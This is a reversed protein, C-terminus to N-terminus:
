EGAILLFCIFKENMGDRELKARIVELVNLEDNGTYIKLPMLRPIRAKVWIYESKEPDIRRVTGDIRGFFLGPGFIFTKGDPQINRRQVPTKSLIQGTSRCRRCFCVLQIRFSLTLSLGDQLEAVRSSVFCM